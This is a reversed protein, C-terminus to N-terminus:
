GRVGTDPRQVTALLGTIMPSDGFTEPPRDVHLLVRYLPFLLHMLLLRMSHRMPSRIAWLGLMQAQSAHWGGPARLALIRFGASALMRELAFPTYRFEDYPPDHVPWLFPVSVFCTGGPRLVRFVEALVRSPEACHELVETLLVGDVAADPLPIHEGKWVIDPRGGYRGQELDLGIYRNVHGAPGTLLTRYPGLGCGVDLLTGRLRPLARRLEDLIASRWHYVDMTSPSCRPALYEQVKAAPVEADVGGPRGASSGRAGRTGLPRAATSTSM